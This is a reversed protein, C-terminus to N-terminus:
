SGVVHQDHLIDIRSPKVFAPRSHWHQRWPVKRSEKVTLSLVFSSQLRCSHCRLGDFGFSRDLFDAINKVSASIM